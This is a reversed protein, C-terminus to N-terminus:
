GARTERCLRTLLEYGSLAPTEPVFALVCGEDGRLPKLAMARAAEIAPSLDLGLGSFPVPVEGKASTTSFTRSKRM